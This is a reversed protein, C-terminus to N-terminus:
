DPGSGKQTQQYTASCDEREDNEQEMARQNQDEQLM